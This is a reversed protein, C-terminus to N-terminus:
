IVPIKKLFKMFVGDDDIIEKYVSQVENNVKKLESSVDM